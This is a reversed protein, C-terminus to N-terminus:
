NDIEHGVLHVYDDYHSEDSFGVGLLFVGFCGIGIKIPYEIFWKTGELYKYMVQLYTDGSISTIEQILIPSLSLLLCCRCMYRIFKTDAKETMVREYDRYAASNSNLVAWRRYTDGKVYSPDNELERATQHLEVDFRKKLYMKIRFFLVGCTAIIIFSGGPIVVGFTLSFILLLLSVESVGINSGFWATNIQTVSTGFVILTYLDIFAYTSLLTLSWRLSMARELNGFKTVNTPDM